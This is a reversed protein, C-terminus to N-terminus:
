QCKGLVEIDELHWTWMGEEGTHQHRTLVHVAPYEDEWTPRNDFVESIVIGLREGQHQVLDGVKLKTDPPIM